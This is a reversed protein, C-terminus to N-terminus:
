SPAGNPGIDEVIIQAPNTSSAQVAATGATAQGRVKRTISGTLGTEYLFFNVQETTNAAASVLSGGSSLTTPVSDTISFINQNAAASNRSPITVSTRYLRNAVATFTVSLSTIDTVTTISGQVATAQAKGVSGWAVSWPPQWTSTAGVYVLIYGTDTEYIVRGASPSSPRTSSTCVHVRTLDETRQLSM